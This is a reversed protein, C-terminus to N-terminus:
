HAPFCSGGSCVGRPAAVVLGAALRRGVHHITLLIAVLRLGLSQSGLWAALDIVGFLVTVYGILILPAWPTPHGLPHSM